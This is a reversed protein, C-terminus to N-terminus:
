LISLWSAFACTFSLSINCLLSLCVNCRLPPLQLGTTHDEQPSNGQTVGHLSRHDSSSQLSLTRSTHPYPFVPSPHPTLTFLHYPRFHLTTLTLHTISPILHLTHSHFTLSTVLLKTFNLLMAGGICRTCLHSCFSERVKVSVYDGPKLYVSGSSVGVDSTAVPVDPFIM